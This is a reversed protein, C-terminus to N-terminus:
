VFLLGDTNGFVLREPRNRRLVNLQHRLAIIETQLETRSRFFDAIAGLILRLIGAMALFYRGIDAWQRTPNSKRYACPGNAVRHCDYSNNVIICHSREKLRPHSEM